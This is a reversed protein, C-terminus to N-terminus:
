LGCRHLFSSIVNEKAEGKSGIRKKFYGSNALVKVSERRYNQKIM